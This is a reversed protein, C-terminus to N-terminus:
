KQNVLAPEVPRSAIHEAVHAADDGVGLLLGSKRDHLFHLGVFYLGPEKTVGREQVPYGAEDYVPFDIWSFNFDYGTAWIVTTIGAKELDLQEVAETEYGAKLEPKEEKPLDMGAKEIYKDVGKKFEAAFNDAQALNDELDNGLYIKTGDIGELRGLLKVGDAALQHLGLTKGGDKGSVQPNAKFRADPSPLDEVTHEFIGLKEAWWFSDKGRYRRPLRDAQGTCLFVERGAENLEDAIQCGSQGSGAILVAGPPLEQPNRYESSHLQHIEPALRSSFAPIRPEQFTGTAVVVNSAAVPGDSTEVLFAGRSDPKKVASVEVGTKVPLSFRAAYDELYQIIKKKKLFGEPNDGEYTFGPLQLMYNPTVLTFSDWKGSRWSEGIREREFIIHERGQQMLYYSAALGAQGAGIVVTDYQGKMTKQKRKLFHVGRGRMEEILAAQHNLEYWVSPM